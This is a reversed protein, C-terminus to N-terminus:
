CGPGSSGQRATWGPGARGPAQCGGAQGTAPRPRTGGGVAARHVLVEPLHRPRWHAPRGRGVSGLATRGRGPGSVPREEAGGAPTRGASRVIEQLDPTNYGSIVAWAFVIVGICIVILTDWPFRIAAHPQEPGFAGYYSLPLLAILLAPLWMGRQVDDRRQRGVFLWTAACVLVVAATMAVFYVIFGWSGAAPPALRAVWGGMVQIYIWAALFVIGAVAAATMSARSSFWGLVRAYYWGFVPLGLFAVAVLDVYTQYGAWYVVLLGALFGLPALVWLWPMRYPRPLDPAYRRFVPLSLGGMIFTLATASTIIGVMSYWSPAPYMFLLGVIVTLILSIWPIGFRNIRQLPRPLYRSVSLGYALRTTIGTYVWGTGSPSIGADVLLIWAYSALWGVGAARLADVLPGNAWPSSALGAWHGVAVSAAHWNLAGVIGVQLMIYIATCIVVALITALPVHKQPNKAEGAFDLAQRFGLFAFLIGTSSIAFFISSGGLPVFGGYSHFNSGKVITFLFVATLTPIILKWWTVWRNVEALLLVGFYNLLFFFIMLGIAFLVGNPWELVNKGHAVHMLGIDTQSGVYTVVAEAEIAPVAASAIFYVWGMQWGLYHGHTLKPYRALAGSRPLMGGLEAFNVAIFLVLVGGIIWSVIAAPGAVSAASFTAFLWGSGIISGIAVFLLHTFGMTKHLQQDSSEFAGSPTAEQGQLTM